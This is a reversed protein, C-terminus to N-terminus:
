GGFGMPRQVGFGLQDLTGHGSCPLIKHTSAYQEVLNKLMAHDEMTAHHQNLSDLLKPLFKSSIYVLVKHFQSRYISLLTSGSIELFERLSAGAAPSHSLNLVSAVWSWACSVGMVDPQQPQQSSSAPGHQQLLVGHVGSM